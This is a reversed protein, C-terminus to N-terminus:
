HLRELESRLHDRAEIIVTRRASTMLEPDGLAVDFYPDPAVELARLMPEARQRPSGNLGMSQMFAQVTDGSESFWGNNKAAIWCIAAAGTEDRSRRRFIAPDAAAVRTLVRLAVTGIEPDDFYDEASATALEATRRVRPLIDTPVGTEDLTESPLPRTDLDDLAEPSGAVEALDDLQLRYLERLTGRLRPDSDGSFPDGSFPDGSFPEGDIELLYNPEYADVTELVDDVLEQPIGSRENAFQAIARLAGPMSAMYEAEAIVKRPYLDCLLREVFLAGWRLPDGTGYSCQLEFLRAAHELGDESLGAGHPSASLEDVLGALDEESFARPEYGTGGEPMLRLMWELLPGTGPWSETEVPPVTIRTLALAGEVRARTNALPIESRVLGLPDHHGLEALAGAFSLPIAYADELMPGNHFIAVALTFSDVPTAVEIFITENEGFADGVSVARVPHIEDLNRLWTPVALDRQEVTSSIRRRASEDDLMRSWVRLLADTEPLGVDLFSAILDTSSVGPEGAWPAPPGSRPQTAALLMSAADLFALPASAEMAQRLGRVLDLDEPHQPFPNM